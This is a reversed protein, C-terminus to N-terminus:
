KKKWIKPKSSFFCCEIQDAYISISENQDTPIQQKSFRFNKGRESCNRISSKWWFHHQKTLSSEINQNDNKNAIVHLHPMNKIEHRTKRWTNIM